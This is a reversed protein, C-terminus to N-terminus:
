PVCFMIRIKHGVAKNMLKITEASVCNVNKQNIDKNLTVPRHSDQWHSRNRRKRISIDAHHM